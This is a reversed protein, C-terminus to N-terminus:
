GEGCVEEMFGLGLLVPKLIDNAVALRKAVGEEYTQVMKTFEAHSTEDWMSLGRNEWAYRVKGPASNLLDVKIWTGDDFKRILFKTM